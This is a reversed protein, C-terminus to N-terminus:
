PLRRLADLQVSANGLATAEASGVSCPLRTAAEVLQVLLPIHAGGGLLDVETVATGTVHGVQDIVGATAAAISEFICRAIGGRDDPDLETLDAIVKPASATGVLRPDDTNIVFGGRASTAQAIVQAITADQWQEMCRELLWLGTLNKLFRYGGGVSRENSFNALRAVRTTCPEDREIGVLVWSGTSVFARHEDRRGPRAHVASATDHGGVLHVPVGRWEGVRTGAAAIEPMVARPVDIEDLLEEDWTGTHLSVLGTTGASTTEATIAGTLHHVLLEPLMLVHAARAMEDRDHVALQFITNIPMLQVGTEAYLRKEGLREAIARWGDTRPDRYSFPPAVLDGNGDVLGYDVGWADIGISDLPGRDLALALGHEVEAVLRGWDWRLTADDHAVPQHVHRHVIDVVDPHADDVVAVRASTAGLDVAAVRM